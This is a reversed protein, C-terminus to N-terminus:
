VWTEGGADEVLDYMENVTMHRLRPDPKPLTKHFEELEAFIEEHTKQKKITLKKAEQDVELELKTGKELNLLKRVKRPITIQGVSSLTLITPEM